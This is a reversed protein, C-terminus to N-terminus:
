IQKGNGHAVCVGNTSQIVVQSYLGSKGKVVQAAVFDQNNKATRLMRIESIRYFKDVSDEPWNDSGLASPFYKTSSM